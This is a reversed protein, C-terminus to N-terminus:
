KMHREHRECNVDQEQIIVILEDKNLERLAEGSLGSM